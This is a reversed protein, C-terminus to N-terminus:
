FFTSSASYTSYSFDPLQTSKCERSPYCPPPPDVTAPTEQTAMPVLPINTDLTSTTDTKYNEYNYDISVNDNYGFPDIHTLKSSSTIYSDSSLSYFPIHELFIVHRSVYLKKAGPDYCHYGKKGDGYGIFVCIASCSSLKSCEVQPHLVFCTSGFVKLSSYNPIFNYLKEFPSLSVKLVKPCQAKRHGKKKCFACDHIGLYVRGQFKGKHFPSAFFFQPTSLVGKDPILNTHSKLRIEEALHQEERQDTYAKVVKLETSEMLALYDWLNSM